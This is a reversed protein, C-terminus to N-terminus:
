LFSKVLSINELRAKIKKKRDEHEKIIKTCLHDATRLTEEESISIKGALFDNLLDVTTQIAMIKEFIKLEKAIMENACLESGYENWAALNFSKEREHDNTLEAIQRKFNETAITIKEKEADTPM